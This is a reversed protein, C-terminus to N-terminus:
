VIVWNDKSIIFVPSIKAVLVLGKGNCHEDIEQTELRFKMISEEKDANQARVAFNTLVSNCDDIKVKWV